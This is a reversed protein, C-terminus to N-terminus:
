QYVGRIHSFPQLFGGIYKDFIIFFYGTSIASFEKMFIICLKYKNKAPRGNIKVINEPNIAKDKSL